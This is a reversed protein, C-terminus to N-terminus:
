NNLLYSLIKILRDLSYYKYKTYWKFLEKNSKSSNCSKCAPVINEKITEGRKSIPVVHEMALSDSEKGCYACSRNFYTLVELWDETNLKFGLEVEAMRRKHDIMKRVAKGKDTSCYERKYNRYYEANEQRYKRNSELIAEKNKAYHRVHAERTKLKMKEIYVPDTEKLYSHRNRRYEKLAERNENV